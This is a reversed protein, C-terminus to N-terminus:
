RAGGEKATRGEVCRKLKLRIRRLLQYLGDTTKGQSIALDKISRGPEYAEMVLSRRSEPLQGLCVELHSIRQSRAPTEEVGETTIKEALAADLQFRDRSKKGQFKLIEYRAIVCAWKPFGEVDTMSDFKRWAVISVAQMVEDVDEPRRIVARISARIVPEHKTLLAIFTEHHDTSSPM